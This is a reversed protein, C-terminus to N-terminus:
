TPLEDLNHIKVSGYEQSFCAMKTSQDGSLSLLPIINLIVGGLVAAMMRIVHIKGIGTRTVFIMKLGCIDPDVMWKLAEIQIERLQLRWM